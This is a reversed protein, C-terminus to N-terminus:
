FRLFSLYSAHDASNFSKLIKLIFIKTPLTVAEIGRTRSLVNELENMFISANSQVIKVAQGPNM